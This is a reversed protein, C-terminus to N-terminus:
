IVELDIAEKHSRQTNSDVAVNTGNITNRIQTDDVYNDYVVPTRKDRVLTSSPRRPATYRPNPQIIDRPLNGVVGEDELDSMITIIMADLNSDDREIMDSTYPETAVDINSLEIFIKEMDNNRVLSLVESDYHSMIEEKIIENYEIPQEQKQVEKNINPQCQQEQINSNKKKFLSGVKATKERDANFGAM